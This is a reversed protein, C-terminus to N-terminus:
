LVNALVLTVIHYGTADPKQVQQKSIEVTMEMEPGFVIQFVPKNSYLIM